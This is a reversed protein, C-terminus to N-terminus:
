LDPHVFLSIKLSRKSSFKKQSQVSYTSDKMAAVLSIYIEDDEISCLILERRIIAEHILEYLRCGKDLLTWAEM